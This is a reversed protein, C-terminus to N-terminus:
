ASFSYVIPSQDEELAGRAWIELNTCDMLVRSCTAVGHPNESSSRDTFLCYPFNSQCHMFEWLEHPSPNANAGLLEQGQNQRARTTSTDSIKSLEGMQSDLCHNAHVYVGQSAEFTKARSSASIEWGLALEPDCVFYHHGSGVRTALLVKEAERASESRLMKRVLTPWSVGVRADKMVLNNITVAVGRSSLGCLGLCGTITQVWVGEDPLFLMMVYPKATAHMDWTQGVLCRDAYSAYVITCGEELYDASLNLDRLDTYHNLILLDAESLSSSEAIGQFELYLDADYGALLPLHQKAYDRVKDANSLSWAECILERRIAALEQIDARFTEGHAHGREKPSLGKSLKLEKM